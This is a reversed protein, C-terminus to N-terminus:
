SAAMMVKQGTEAGLRFLLMFVLALPIFSLARDM